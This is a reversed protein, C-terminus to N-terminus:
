YHIKPTWYMIPLTEQDESLKLGYRHCLEANTNIIEDKSELSAHYTPATNGQIGVEKLLRNVYFLKCIIAINNSANDIPVVVYKKTFNQSIYQLLKM